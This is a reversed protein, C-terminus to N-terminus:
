KKILNWIKNTTSWIDEIVVDQGESDTTSIVDKSNILELLSSVLLTRKQTEPEKHITLVIYDYYSSELQDVKNKLDTTKILDYLYETLNIEIVKVVFDPYNPSVIELNEIPDNIMGTNILNCIERLSENKIIEM